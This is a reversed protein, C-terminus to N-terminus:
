PAGTPAALVAALVVAGAVARVLVHRWVVVRGRTARADIGSVTAALVVGVATFALSAAHGFAVAVAAIVLVAAAMMFGMATARRRRIVAWAGFANVAAYALALLTALTTV